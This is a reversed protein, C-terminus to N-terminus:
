ELMEREFRRITRGWFYRVYVWRIPWSVIEGTLIYVWTELYFRAFQVYGSLEVFILWLLPSALYFCMLVVFSFITNYRRLALAIQLRVGLVIILWLGIIIAPWLYAEPERPFFEWRVDLYIIILGALVHVYLYRNIGYIAPAELGWIMDETNLGALYYDSYNDRIAQLSRQGLLRATLLLIPLFVMPIGLPPIFVNLQKTYRVLFIYFEIALLLYLGIPWFARWLAKYHRRRNFPDKGWMLRSLANDVSRLFLIDKM